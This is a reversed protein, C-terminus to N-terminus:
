NGKLTVPVESHMQISLVLIYAAGVVNLQCLWDM